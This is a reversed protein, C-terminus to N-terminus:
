EHFKRPARWHAQFFVSIIPDQAGIVAIIGHDIKATIEPSIPDTPEGNFIVLYFLNWFQIQFEWLIRTAASSPSIELWPLRSFLWTHRWSFHFKMAAELSHPGYFNYQKKISLFVLKRNDSLHVFYIFNASRV